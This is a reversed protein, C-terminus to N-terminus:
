DKQCWHIDIYDSFTKRNGSRLREKELHKNIQSLSLACNSSQCLSLPLSLIGLLSWATLVSDWTPSSRVFRAHGSGFDLAPYGVSYAM